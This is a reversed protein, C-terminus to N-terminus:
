RRHNETACHVTLAKDVSEIKKSVDELKDQSVKLTSVMESMIKINESEKEAAAKVNESLGNLTSMMEVNIKLQDTTLKLITESYKTNNKEIISDKKGINKFLLIISIFSLTLVGYIGSEALAKSITAIAGALVEM